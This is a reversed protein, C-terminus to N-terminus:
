WADTGGDGGTDGSNRRRPMMRCLIRYNVSETWMYVRKRQKCGFRIIGNYSFLTNGGTTTKRENSHTLYICACPCFSCGEIPFVLLPFELYTHTSKKISIFNISEVENAYLYCCEVQSRNSAGNDGTAATCKSPSDSLDSCARVTFIVPSSWRDVRGTCASTSWIENLDSGFKDWILYYFCCVIASVTCLLALCGVASSNPLLGGVSLCIDLVQSKSPWTTNRMISILLMFASLLKILVDKIRSETTHNQAQCTLIPSYSFANM